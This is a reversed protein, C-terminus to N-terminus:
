AGEDSRLLGSFQGKLAPFPNPIFAAQLVMNSQMLFELNAASSNM